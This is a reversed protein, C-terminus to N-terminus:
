QNVHTISKGKKLANYIIANQLGAAVLLINFLYEYNNVGKLLYSALLIVAAWILANIILLNRMM